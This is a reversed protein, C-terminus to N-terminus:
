LELSRVDFTTSALFSFSDCFPVSVSLLVSPSVRDCHYVRNIYM